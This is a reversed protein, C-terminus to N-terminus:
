TMRMRGLTTPLKFSLLIPPLPHFSCTRHRPFAHTCPSPLLGPSLLPSSALFSHHLFHTICSVLSALEELDARNSGEPTSARETGVFDQTFKFWAAFEEQSTFVNGVLTNGEATAYLDILSKCFEQLNADRRRHISLLTASLTRMHLTDESILEM